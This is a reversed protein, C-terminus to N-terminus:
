ATLGPELTSPVVDHSNTRKKDTRAKREPAPQSAKIRAKLRVDAIAMVARVADLQGNEVWDLLKSETSQRKSM